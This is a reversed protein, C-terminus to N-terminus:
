IYQLARLVDTLGRGQFDRRRGLNTATECLIEKVRRPQGILEPNRAILM